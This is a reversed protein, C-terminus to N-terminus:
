PTGCEVWGLLHVGLSGGDVLLGRHEIERRVMEPLVTSLLHSRMDASLASSHAIQIVRVKSLLADGAPLRRGEDDVAIPLIAQRFFGNSGRVEVRWISLVSMADPGGVVKGAVARDTAPLARGEELLSRVIPHELGLLSLLEDEKARERSTTLRVRGSAAADVDLVGPMVESVVYGRHQAADRLFSALRAMGAGGDDFKRYEDLNFSDLDQFLKFVVNRALSANEVAVTLEEKTRRLTPDKVAEQYLQDYSIREALQGLVQGRLDETVQGYEDVKGLTQAIALLKQELLLFIQGEITDASVINYVQATDKQGYRHIRGIRQEMDMPNWPLDHNFLVRAFQLNIGERGAATCVLVRPGDPRRFRKEAATKAGHDGGKLVDVGKDPFKLDIARKLTDVSGLFTTFIVVKETPNSRWLDGLGRLLEETKSEMGGPMGALLATIRKREEPLAVSVWAAASDEEGAATVESDAQEPSIKDGLRKLLQVKADALLRDAEARAMLDNGLAYMARILERAEAYARDRGDTDLNEDCVLADHITLMLLRRRLTSAVAAFSSSAIKQFITMVFGLPQGKAGQQAALNYGDRLYEMLLEYFKTEPPSLHFASTHVQRRAFLPEGDANCADAQTRRFVVANLRHRNDVMDSPNEFLRPDLLRILMWFRFHDGQHPTASLLLLDRSHDRLAEALKFNQTKKVKKGTESATLHHAEDFVILDWRPAELLRKVRTPRKLTDISVILRNHKAFANSKRDTVDGESGFVEFDLSFKENLERRWNDVLGAPVVMMARTLEGRSALERLILATEITKGLGVSDAVLFRRPSANAVKYTLVIQHPLLDVKASTLTAASDMLPLREAEIALWLKRVAEPTAPRVNEIVQENWSGARTLAHTIVQREGHSRFFVRAYGGPELRLMVGEGLEPHAVTDGSALAKPSAGSSTTGIGSSM